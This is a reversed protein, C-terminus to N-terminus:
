IVTQLKPCCYSKGSLSKSRDQQESRSQEAHFMGGENIEQARTEINKQLEKIQGDLEVGAKEAQVRDLVDKALEADVM